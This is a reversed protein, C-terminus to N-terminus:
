VFSPYSINTKIKDAPFIAPTSKSPFISDPYKGSCGTIRALIGITQSTTRACVILIQCIKFNGGRSKNCTASPGNSYLPSRTGGSSAEREWLTKSNATGLIVCESKSCSSIIESLISIRKGELAAYNVMGLLRFFFRSEESQSSVM